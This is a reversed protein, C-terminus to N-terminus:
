GMYFLGWGNGGVGSDDGDIWEEPAPVPSAAVGETGVSSFYTPGM